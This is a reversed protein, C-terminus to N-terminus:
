FIRGDNRAPPVMAQEVISPHGPRRIETEEPGVEEGAPSAPMFPTMTFTIAQSPLLGIRASLNAAMKVLGDLDAILQARMAESMTVMQVTQTQADATKKNGNM